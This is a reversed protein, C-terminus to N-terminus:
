ENSDTTRKESIKLRISSYRKHLEVRVTDPLYSSLVMSSRKIKHKISLNDLYYRIVNDIPVNHYLKDISKQHITGSLYTQMNQAALMEDAMGPEFTCIRKEAILKRIIEQGKETNTFVASVGDSNTQFRRGWYDGLRIDASSHDLREMCNICADSLLINEFYIQWFESRERTGNYANGERDEAHICYSSHWDVTKYRFRLSQIDGHLKAHIKELEADWLKYSTVGHCFIEILLLQERVGALEAARSLGAIQCPTGFVTYQRYKDAKAGHIIESFASSPDSQLYKSGKLADLAEESDVIVHAARNKEYDYVVGCIQNGQEIQYEAIEAAIGGSSSTRVTSPDTSQAAYLVAKHLDTGTKKNRFRSCVDTCRGCKICCEDDLVAHYFGAPDLELKIAHVPCVAICASCGSCSTGKPAKLINEAESIQEEFMDLTNTLYEKGAEAMAGLRQDIKEWDMEKRFVCSIDRPTFSKFERDETGTAELISRMKFQNIGDRIFLAVPRHTKLATVYGHFTDTIVYAANKFYEVWELPDCAIIKDCWSHYTGASVTLLGRRRAWIKIPEYEEPTKMHADYSYILVYPADIRREDTQAKHLDTLIVPDCVLPVERGTLQAIMERTHVDRASLAEMASLGSVVTELVGRETLEEITTRGFSPAYSLRHNCKIGIGYMMRNIGVDISYVEDSGIVVCDLNETDYPAFRFNRNRFQSLKRYKLANHGTLGIGKKLLYERTYYPISAITVNNKKAEDPIFDFNKEYTLIVVSHGLSELYTCLSYMQLQAGMNNVNYHTLIGIRM